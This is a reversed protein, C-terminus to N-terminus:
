LNPSDIGLADHCATSAWCRELVNNTKTKAETQMYLSMDSSYLIAIMCNRLIIPRSINPPPYHSITLITFSVWYVALTIPALSLVPHYFPLTLLLQDFTLINIYVDLLGPVHHIPPVFLYGFLLLGIPAHSLMVASLINFGYHLSFFPSVIFTIFHHCPPSFRPWITFSLQSYQHLILITSASLVTVIM